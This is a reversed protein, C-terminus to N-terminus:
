KKRKRDLPTILIAYKDSTLDFPSIYFKGIKYDAYNVPLLQYYIKVNSKCNSRYEEYYKHSPNDIKHFNKIIQYSDFEIYPGRDGIVVRNYGRAVILNSKTFFIINNEGVLPLIMRETYNQM